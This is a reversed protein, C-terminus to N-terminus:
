CATGGKVEFTQKVGDHTVEISGSQAVSDSEPYAEGNMLSEVVSTNKDASEFTRVRSMEDGESSVLDVQVVAGDIKVFGPADNDAASARFIEGGDDNSLMTQCGQVDGEEEGLPEVKFGPAPGPGPTEAAETQADSSITAESIRAPQQDVKPGCAAMLAAASIFALVLRM